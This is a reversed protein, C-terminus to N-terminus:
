INIFKTKFIRRCKDTNMSTDLPIGNAIANDNSILDDIILNEDLGLKQAMKRNFTYYSEKQEPGVHIIGNLDILIMENILDALNDVHV